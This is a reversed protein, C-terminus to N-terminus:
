RQGQGFQHLDLVDFQIGPAGEAADQGGGPLEVAGDLEPFLAQRHARAKALEPHASERQVVQPL